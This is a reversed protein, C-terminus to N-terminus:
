DLKVDLLKNKENLKGFTTNQSFTRYIYGAVNSCVNIEEQINLVIM